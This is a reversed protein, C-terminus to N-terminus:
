GSASRAQPDLWETGCGTSRAEPRVPGGFLWRQRTSRAPIARAAHRLNKNAIGHDAVERRDDGHQGVIHEPRRLLKRRRGKVCSVQICECRYGRRGM